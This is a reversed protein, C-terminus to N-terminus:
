VPSYMGQCPFHGGGPWGPDPPRLDPCPVDDTAVNAHRWDPCDPDGVPRIEIKGNVVVPKDKIAHLGLVALVTLFYGLVLFSSVCRDAASQHDPHGDAIWVCRGLGINATELARVYTHM